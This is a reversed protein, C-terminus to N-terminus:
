NLVKDKAKKFEDETLVGSEFLGKLEKLKEVIDSDNTIKKTIKPDKKTKKKETNTKTATSDVENVPEGYINITEDIEGTKFNIGSLLAIDGDYFGGDKLKEAIVHPTKLDSKKIKVKKNGNKWVIRREIAFTKCESGRSGKECRKIAQIEITDTICGRSVPCYYYFSWNGDESSSFVMPYSKKVVDSNHTIPGSGYLYKIFHELNEKSFKLEGKGWKGAYSNNNILFMLIFFLLFKKM